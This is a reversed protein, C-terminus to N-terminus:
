SQLGDTVGVWPACYGGARGDQIETFAGPYGALSGNSTGPTDSLAKAEFRM